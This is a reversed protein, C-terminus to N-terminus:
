KRVEADVGRSPLARRGRKTRYATPSTGTVSSIVRCLSSRARMAALRRLVERQDVPQEVLERRILQDGAVAM